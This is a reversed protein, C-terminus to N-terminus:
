GGRYRARATPDIVVKGVAYGEAVERLAEVTHELPFVAGIHPRVREALDGGVATGNTAGIGAILNGNLANRAQPRNLTLVTVPGRREVLFEEDSM